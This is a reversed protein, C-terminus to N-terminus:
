AHIPQAVLKVGLAACVKSITDFRPQADA